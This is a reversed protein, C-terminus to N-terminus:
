EWFYFKFGASLDMMQLPFAKDLGWADYPRLESLIFHYRGRVDLAITPTL